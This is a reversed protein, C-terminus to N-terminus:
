RRIKRRIRKIDDLNLQIKRKLLEFEFSDCVSYIFSIRLKNANKQM